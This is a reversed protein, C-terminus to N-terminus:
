YQPRDPTTQEPQPDQGSTGRAAPTCMEDIHRLNSVNVRMDAAAQGQRGTVTGQPAIMGTIEVKHGAHAALNTGGILQVRQGVIVATSAGATGVATQAQGRAAGAAPMELVSLAFADPTSGRELCGTFRTTTAAAQPQPQTATRQGTQGVRSRASRWTEWERMTAPDGRWDAREGSPDYTRLVGRELNSDPIDISLVVTKTREAIQRAQEDSYVFEHGYVSSPYFWAKIAAPTGREAPDFQLVIDGSVETRKAPVAMVTTVVENTAQNRITVLNRNSGPEALEFVYTGAALTAGPIMVPASFTLTTREQWEDAQAPSAAAITLMAIAVIARRTWIM